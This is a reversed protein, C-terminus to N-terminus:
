MTALLEVGNGDPDRVMCGGDLSTNEVPLGARMVREVAARWSREDPLRLAFSRLGIADAPAPPAGRSHWTNVGVHHHYGGASLFLAGPVSRQTVDLGLLGHYFAEARALDAVQLHVHGIDAARDIGNWPGAEYEVSRLLGAVDLPDTGMVVQGDKWRWQSRPTDAYLELGLGDADALYAAVSVGHDAFGLLPWNQTLLRRLLRALAQRGPLRIAVHYLGARHAPRASAGPRESLLVHYPEDGTASLGAPRGSSGVLRFGLVGQYFRLAADLSPVQLHVHGIHTEAPLRFDEM